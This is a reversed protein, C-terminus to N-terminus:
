NPPSEVVDRPSLVAPSIPHSHFFGVVRKGERRLQRQASLVHDRSISFQGPAKALNTLFILTLQHVRNTVLLGCVEGQDLKQRRHARRHLRLRENYSLSFARVTM